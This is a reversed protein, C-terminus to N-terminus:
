TRFRPVKFMFEMFLLVLLEKIVKGTIWLIWGVKSYIIRVGYLLINGQKVKTSLDVIAKLEDNQQIDSAEETM